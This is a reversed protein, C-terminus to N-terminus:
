PRYAQITVEAAPRGDVRVRGVFVGYNDRRITITVETRVEAGVPLRALSFDANKVGVLYGQNVFGPRDRNDWGYSLSATQAVVEVLVLAPVHEDAALPWAEGVTARTVCHDPDIELIQEVLLMAGRHPLFDEPRM